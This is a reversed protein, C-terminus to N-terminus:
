FFILDSGLNFIFCILIACVENALKHISGSKKVLEAQRAFLQFDGCFGSKTNSSKYIKLIQAIEHLGTSAVSHKLYVCDHPHYTTDLHSLGGDSVSWKLREQHLNRKGCSVCQEWPECTALAAKVEPELPQIFAARTEHWQLRSIFM